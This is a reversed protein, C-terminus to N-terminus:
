FSVESILEAIFLCIFLIGLIMDFMNASRRRKFTGQVVGRGKIYGACSGERSHVRCLEGGKLTGQM